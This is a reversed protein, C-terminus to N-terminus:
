MLFLKQIGSVYKSSKTMRFPFFGSINHAHHEQDHNYKLELIIFNDDTMKQLFNNEYPEIRYYEMQTDVTIRYHRDASQFYRRSYRNLLAPQFSNLDTKLANPVASNEFISRIADQDFKEELTFSPLPFSEKRGLLGDKIKLELVPKDIHGFLDDYWRIRCKTRHLLGDINAFYNQMSYTDFYINNVFREFYIESFAAPHLRIFSEMQPKTIDSVVFKREYRYDDSHSPSYFM